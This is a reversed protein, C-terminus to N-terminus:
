ETEAYAEGKKLYLTVTSIEKLNLKHWEVSNGDGDVVKIDWNKATEKRSFSIDLDDDDALTDQGLVDEEWEDSKSPAVYLEHIEIGTRNRLTFDQEGASAASGAAMLLLLLGAQAAQVVSFLRISSM